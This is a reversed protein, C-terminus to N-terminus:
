LEAILCCAQKIKEPNIVKSCLKEAVYTAELNTEQNYIAGASFLSVTYVVLIGVGKPHTWLDNIM